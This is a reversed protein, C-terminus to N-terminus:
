AKGLLAPLRQALREYEDATNYVQASLRLMGGGPWPNISVEADLEDSIRQRLGRAGDLDVAVGRPLPVIRMPLGPGIDHDPLDVPKLGLATGVVRQAYSALMANHERVAAPGLARLVFLGTSAALWPTYDTSGSRELNDPFGIAQTWAVVTPRIRERWSGAVCLLATGRPAYGWKHFNGIWFDAGLESVKVPLLGPVHAGDVLVPIASGRLAEVVKEVPFLRATGSTIHDLVVMRTRGRVSARVADVVEDDSPAIPLVAVRRAAGTRQCWHDVAIDVAGYGHNTTVIEDGAALQL